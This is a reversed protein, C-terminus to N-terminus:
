FQFYLFPPAEARDVVILVFAMCGTAVARTVPSIRVGYWERALQALHIVLIPAVFVLYRWEAALVLQEGDGAALQEFPWVFMARLIRTAAGFDQARFFVWCLHVFVFTVLVALARGLLAVAGSPRDIHTGLAPRSRRDGRLLREISLGLGHLAGWVVFTWSAGHWLGGLLMTIFLNFHVRLRTGRRGGLSIYLYDRLWTSLTVHWRGWFESLGRAIYPAHFNEPFRLGMLHAVGIAIGSYGAFDAFIQAGFFVVGLWVAGPSPDGGTAEFVRGVAPALNDAVVVKLFLGQVIRHVGAEIRALRLTRRQRLQPLFEAARVIPGAVLQPFFSVYLVFDRFSPCTPQVRRYVDLTYSLTQFTYFSIGVPIVWGLFTDPDLPRGFLSATNRALFPGYKFFGLLGLNTVLSLILFGRRRRPDDAREIRQAVVYDVASSFVLLAVYYPSWWGYFFLSALVCVSKALGFPLARWAAWVIPLFLWFSLSDFSM